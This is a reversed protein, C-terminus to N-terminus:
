WTPSATFKSAETDGEKKDAHYTIMENSTTM